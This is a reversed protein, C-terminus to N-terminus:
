LFPIYRAIKKRINSSTQVFREEDTSSASDDFCKLYVANMEDALRKPDFRVVYAKGAEIMERRLDADGLVRKMAAAMGAVDDPGVYLSRPGGAEELCSGTAAIVPVGASLAEVIPIGFGEFRSPYVFAEAMHYLVPLDGFKLNHIIHIRDSLGHAEIYEKVKDAYATSKGVAVLHVDGLQEVAKVALLLNKREEITGVSLIFQDPLHYAERVRAKAEASVPQAFVPDCGQYVVDIKDPSIGYFKVIDHKTCESVAVIRDAKRCAYRFKYNYIIRDLWHYYQPYRLFILDHITVVSRIGTRHIGVPLENSLGHYLQVGDQLLGRKIFFTRWLAKCRKMLFSRPQISAVNKHKLLSDYLANKCKKPIYMRYKHENGYTAMTDVMFRSYNGLGTFNANARKADFGIIM